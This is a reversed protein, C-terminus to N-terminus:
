RAAGSVDYVMRGERMAQLIDAEHKEYERINMKVVDSEYVANPDREARPASSTNRTVSKAAERRDDVKKEPKKTKFKYLDLTSIVTDATDELDDYDPDTEFANRVAKPQKALWEAFDDDDKIDFFDKHALTIKNLCRDFEVQYARQSVIAERESLEGRLNAVEKLAITRVIAGVDPFKTLWAEVEEETKPFKIQKQVADSLQKKLSDIEKRLENENKQSFSRLDSYRKEWGKKPEDAESEEVPANTKAAELAALEEELQEGRMARTNLKRTNM